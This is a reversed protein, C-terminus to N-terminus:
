SGIDPLKLPDAQGSREEEEGEHRHWLEHADVQVRAVAEIADINAQREALTTEQMVRRAALVDTLSSEGLEYARGAKAASVEAASRAEKQRQWIEGMSRAIAVALKVGQTVDRRVMSLTAEAGMADASAAAAEAGRYRVGLPISLTLGLVRERGGRENLVRIGVVPDPLREARARRAESEKQRVVAEAAGVEHSRKLVLAVWDNKPLYPPPAPLHVSTPLPLTPFASSLALHASMQQAQAELAKARAQALAAEITVQDRRAADGLQVRRSVVALDRRWLAVQAQQLEVAVSARQWNTWLVLLRRAGAHHADELMLRAVEYGQAGIERDLRAKNPWRIGRSLGVEWEPYRAGGEVRRQQPLVTLQTEHSGARRMRQEAKARALQAEAARVEPTAEIAQLVLEQPPLSTDKALPQASIGVAWWALFWVLWRM